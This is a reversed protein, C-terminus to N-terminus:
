HIFKERLENLEELSVKVIKNKNDYHKVNKVSNIFDPYDFFFPEDNENVMKVYWKKVEKDFVKEGYIETPDIPMTTSIDKKVTFLGLWGDEYDFFEPELYKSDINQIRDLFSEFSELNHNIEEKEEDGIYIPNYIGFITVGSSMNLLGTLFDLDSERVLEIYDQNESLKVKLGDKDYSDVKLETCITNITQYFTKIESLSTPLSLILQIYSGDISLEIGRALKNCDYIMTFDGIENKRLVNAGDFVGYSLGTINIIDKISLPKRFLRKQKIRVCVSM